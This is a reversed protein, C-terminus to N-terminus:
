IACPTTLSSTFSLNSVFSKRDITRSVECPEYTDISPLGLSAMDETKLGHKRLMGNLLWVRQSRGFLSQADTLSPATCVPYDLAYPNLTGLTSAVELASLACALTNYTDATCFKKYKDIAPKSVLQHGWMTDFM